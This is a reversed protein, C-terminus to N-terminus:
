AIQDLPQTGPFTGRGRVDPAPGPITRTLPALNDYASCQKYKRVSLELLISSLVGNTLLRKLSSKLTRRNNTLTRCEQFIFVIFGITQTRYNPPCTVPLSLEIENYRFSEGPHCRTARSPRLTVASRTQPEQPNRYMRPRSAENM